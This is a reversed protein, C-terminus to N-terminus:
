SAGPIARTLEQGGPTSQKCVKHKLVLEKTRQYASSVMARVEEDIMQATNESYPKDFTMEGERPMEFSLQGVRDNMGFQMIQAYALRTVKSLDDQAGTWARVCTFM